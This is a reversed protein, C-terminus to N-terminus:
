RYGSKKDNLRESLFQISEDDSLLHVSDRKEDYKNIITTINQKSKEIIDIYEKSEKEYIESKTKWFVSEQKLKEILGKEKKIEELLKNERYNCILNVIFSIVLIILLTLSIPKFNNLIFQKM